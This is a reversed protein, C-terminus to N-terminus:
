EIDYQRLCDEYQARNLNSATAALGACLLYGAGSTGAVCAVFTATIALEQYNWTDYCQTSRTIVKNRDNKYNPKLLNEEKVKILSNIFEAGYRDHGKKVM